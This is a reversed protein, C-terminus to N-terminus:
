QIKDKFHVNCHINKLIFRLVISTVLVIALLDLYLKQYFPVHLAPSRLHLAGRTKVVHEVWHVLEAGPTVPRDHYILSLEKIKEKYRSNNIMEAVAEELDRVMTFSLDVRRAIGKQVARNVNGFQDAFVPIGIIPKGFHVAETTSLLGGHTIFLICNPHALISQQPAWKLLHVNEPLPSLNEEFKWLVTQKLQSFMKLLGEKIEKPLDKSKLNSGMSFYIVGHKSENMIKQLDLPLEKVNGGIHYGGIAKYNIPVKIADGLSVHSNGLLLSGNYRVEDYNPVPKGNKKIIPAINNDYIYKELDYVWTNLSLSWTLQSSLVSMREVFTFPVEFSDQFHSTYAPNPYEDILRLVMWHPEITSFWILPCDLVAHFSAYLDSFMWEAIIVDFQERSQDRLLRQVNENLITSSSINNMLSFLVNKDKLNFEKTMLAKIDIYDENFAAKNAAVDIQVLNPPPDKKPFPTIHTVEHGAELLHRVVADGLIGHSRGPVPFVTLIKYADVGLCFCVAIAITLRRIMM